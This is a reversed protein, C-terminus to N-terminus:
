CAQLAGGQMSTAHMGAQIRELAFERNLKRVDRNLATWFIEMQGPPDAAREATGFCVFDPLPGSFVAYASEEGSLRDAAGFWRIERNWARGSGRVVSFKVRSIAKGGAPGRGWRLVPSSQPVAFRWYRIGESRPAVEVATMSSDGDYGPHIRWVFQTGSDNSNENSRRKLLHRIEEKWRPDALHINPRLKLAPPLSQAAIGHLLGISPFSVGKEKSVRELTGLLEEMLFREKSNRRTLLYAWGDLEGSTIKHGIEEWLRRGSILCTSSYSAQLGAAKLQNVLYSFEGEPRDVWPYTIWLRPATTENEFM